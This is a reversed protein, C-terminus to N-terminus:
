GRPAIPPQPSDITVEALFFAVDHSRSVEEEKIKEQVELLVSALDAMGDGHEASIMIPEGFGLKEIEDLAYDNGGMQAWADGELKNACM